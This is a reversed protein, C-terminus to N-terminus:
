PNKATPVQYGRYAVGLPPRPTATATPVPVQKAGADAKASADVKADGGADASADVGVDSSPEVVSHAVADSTYAPVAVGYGAYAVGPAPEKHCAGLFPVATATLAVQFVVKPVLRSRRKAVPRLM